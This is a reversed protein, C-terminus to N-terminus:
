LRNTFKKGSPQVNLIEAHYSLAKVKTTHDESYHDAEKCLM